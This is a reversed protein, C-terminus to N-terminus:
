DVVPWRYKEPDARVADACEKSCVWVPMQDPAVTISEAPEVHMQEPPHLSGCVECRILGEPAGAEPSVAGDLSFVMVLYAIAALIIATLIVQGISLTKM